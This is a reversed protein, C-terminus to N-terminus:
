MPNRLAKRKVQNRRSKDGLQGSFAATFFDASGKDNGSVGDIGFDAPLVDIGDSVDNPMTGMNSVAAGRSSFSAASLAPDNTVLGSDEEFDDGDVMAQMEAMLPDAYGDEQGNKNIVAMDEEETENNDMFSQPLEEELEEETLDSLGEGHSEVEEDEDEEHEYNSDIDARSEPFILDEEGYEGDEDTAFADEDIAVPRLPRREAGPKPSYQPEYPLFKDGGVSLIIEQTLIDDLKEGLDATLTDATKGTLASLGRLKRVVDDNVQITLEM